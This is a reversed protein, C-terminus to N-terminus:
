PPRKAPRPAPVLGHIGADIQRRVLSRFADKDIEGTQTFPTVLATFAGRFQRTPPM